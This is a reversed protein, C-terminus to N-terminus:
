KMPCKFTAGDKCCYERGASFNSNMWVGNCDKTFLYAREKYVDRDISGCIISPSNPLHKAIQSCNFLCMQSSRSARM